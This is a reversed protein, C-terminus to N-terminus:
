PSSPFEEPAQPNSCTEWASDELDERMFHEKLERSTRDEIGLDKVFTLPGFRSQHGPPIVEFVIIYRAVRKKSGRRPFIPILHCRKIGALDQQTRTISYGATSELMKEAGKSQPVFCFRVAQAHSTVSRPPTGDTLIPFPGFSGEDSCSSSDKDGHNYTLDPIDTSNEPASTYARSVPSPVHLAQNVSSRASM